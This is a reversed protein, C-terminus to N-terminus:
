DSTMYPFRRTNMKTTERRRYERVVPSVEDTAQVVSKELEICREVNVLLVPISLGVEFWRWACILQSKRCDPVVDVVVWRRALAPNGNGSVFKLNSANATHRNHVAAVVM